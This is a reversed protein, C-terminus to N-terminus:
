GLDIFLFMLCISVGGFIAFAIFVGTLMFSSFTLSLGGFIGVIAQKGFIGALILIISLILAPYFFNSLENLPEVTLVQEQVDLLNSENDYFNVKFIYDGVEDTFTYYSSFKGTEYEFMTTNEEDIIGSPLYVSLNVTATTLTGSEVYETKINITEYQDYLDGYVSFALLLMMLFIILKKM